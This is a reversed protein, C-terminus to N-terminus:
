LTTHLMEILGAISERETIASENLYDKMTDGHLNYIYIVRQHHRKLATILGLLLARKAQYQQEAEADEIRLDLGIKKLSANMADDHMCLLHIIDMYAYWHATAMADLKDRMMDSSLQAAELSVRILDLQECCEEHLTKMHDFDITIPKRNRYYRM